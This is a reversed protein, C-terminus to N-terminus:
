SPLSPLQGSPIADLVGHVFAKSKEEGFVKALLLAEHIIISRSLKSYLLEYCGLRLIARDMANMRYLAWHESTKDLQSDITLINQYIKRCFTKAKARTNKSPVSKEAQLISQNWYAYFHPASFFYIRRAECIYLFRICCFRALSSHNKRISNLADQTVTPPPAPLHLQSQFHDDSSSHTMPIRPHFSNKDTIISHHKLSTKKKWIRQM